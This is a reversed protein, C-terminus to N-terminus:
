FRRSHFFSAAAPNDHRQADTGIIRMCIDDPNEGVFYVCHGKEVRHGAFTATDDTSGITQGLVLAIASKAHGTQGTLSYFFRRQLIGDVLYDPPEFGKLFDAKSLIRPTPAPEHPEFHEARDFADRLADAGRERLLDNPDNNKVRRGGGHHRASCLRVTSVTPATARARKTAGGTGSRSHDHDCRHLGARRRRAGADACSRRGAWAGLGTAEHVSIADEIGETIVLGLLDNLPAVVIPSGASYGVTIKNPEDPHKRGDSTLKTLHVGRIADDAIDITGPEIEHAMSITAIM